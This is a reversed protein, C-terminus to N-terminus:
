AALFALQRKSKQEVQQEKRTQWACNEKCYDGVDGFRGLTTNAPREGMDALFNRFDRWRPDIKVGADFYHEHGIRKPNTCRQIMAQWSRQTSSGKGRGSHGHKFGSSDKGYHGANV